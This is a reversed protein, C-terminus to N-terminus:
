LDFLSLSVPTGLQQTKYTETQLRWFMAFFSFLGRDSVSARKKLLFVIVVIVNALSQVALM